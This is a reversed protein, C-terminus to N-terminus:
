NKAPLIDNAAESSFGKPRKWEEPVDIKVGHGSGVPMDDSLFREAIARNRLKKRDETM